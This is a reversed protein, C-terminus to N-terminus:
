WSPPQERDCTSGFGLRRAPPPPRRRAARGNNPNRGAPLGDPGIYNISHASPLRVAAIVGRELTDDLLEKIEAGKSHQTMGAPRTRAQVLPPPPPPPPPLPSPWCEGVAPHSGPGTVWHVVDYSGEPSPIPLTGGPFSGRHYFSTLVPTAM